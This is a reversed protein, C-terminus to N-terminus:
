QPAEGMYIQTSYCRACQSLRQACRAARGLESPFFMVTFAHGCNGCHCPTPTRKRAEDPNDGKYPEFLAVMETLAEQEDESLGMGGIFGIQSIAEKAKEYDM